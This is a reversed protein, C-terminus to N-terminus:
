NPVVLVPSHAKEMRSGVISGKGGVVATQTNAPQPRDAPQAAGLRVATPKGWNELSILSL